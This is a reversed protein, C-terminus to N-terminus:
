LTQTAALAQFVKLFRFDFDIPESPQDRYAKPALGFTRKFNRSFLFPNPYNLQQSIQQISRNSEILMLRGMHVRLAEMVKSPSDGLEDNFCRILTSRSASAWATMEQLSPPSLNGQRWSTHVRDLVNQITRSFDKFGKEDFQHTGDIWTNLMQQTCLRIHNFKSPHDSMLLHIIHQFLSHLINDSSLQDIVKPWDKQADLPFDKLYFHIHDHQTLGVKDWIYTEKEGPQSLLISGPGLLHVQDQYHWEVQGKIIRVFEFGITDRPGLLTGPGYQVRGINFIKSIEPLM